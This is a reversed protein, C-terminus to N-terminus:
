LGMLQSTGYAVLAFGGFFGAVLIFPFLGKLITFFIYGGTLPLDDDFRYGNDRYGNKYGYGNKPGYGNSM